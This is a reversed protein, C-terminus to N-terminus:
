PAKLANQLAETGKAINSADQGTGAQLSAVVYAANVKNYQLCEIQFVANATSASQTHNGAHIDLGASGKLLAALATKAKALCQAETVKADMTVFRTDLLLNAKPAAAAVGFLTVVSLASALVLKM